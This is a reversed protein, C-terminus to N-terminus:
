WHQLKVGNNDNYYNVGYLIIDILWWISIVCSFLNILHKVTNRDMCYLIILLIPILIKAFGIGYNGSYFHGIPMIFLELLFAFLQKKRTYTCYSKGIIESNNKNENGILIFNAKELTCKCAYEAVCNNPSPCNKLSCKEATSAFAYPDKPDLLAQIKINNSYYNYPNVITNNYNFTSNNSNLQYDTVTQTQNTNSKINSLTSTKTSTAQLIQTKKNILNKSSITSKKSTKELENLILNKKNEIKQLKSLNKILNSQVLTYPIIFIIIFLFLAILTPNSKKSSKTTQCIVSNYVFSM